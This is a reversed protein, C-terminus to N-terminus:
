GVDVSIYIAIIIWVHRDLLSHFKNLSTQTYSQKSQLQGTPLKELRGSPLHRAFPPLLSLLLLVFHLLPFLTRKQCNNTNTTYQYVSISHLAIYVPSLSRQQKPQKRLSLTSVSQSGVYKGKLFGVRRVM